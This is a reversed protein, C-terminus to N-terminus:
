RKRKKALTEKPLKPKVRVFMLPLGAQFFLAIVATMGWFAERRGIIDQWLRGPAFFYNVANNYVTTIEETYHTTEMLRIDEIDLPYAGYVGTVVGTMVCIFVYVGLVSVSVTIVRCLLMDMRANRGFLSFMLVNFGPMVVFAALLVFYPWVILFSVFGLLASIFVITFLPVIIFLLIGNHQKEQVM